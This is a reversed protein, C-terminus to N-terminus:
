LRQVCKKETLITNYIFLFQKFKSTSKIFYRMCEDLSTVSGCLTNTNAVYAKSNKVEIEKDGLHHIGDPLGIASLADTVLVLGKPNVRHAIKLAAPHTHTGDAIIGFYIPKEDSPPCAILGIM